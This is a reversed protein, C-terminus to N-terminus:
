LAGFVKRVISKAASAPDQRIKKEEEALMFYLGDLAKQTVYEDLDAHETKLLGFAAAPKALERYRQAVGVKQTARVVIPMFRDHLSKHTSRRFYETAATNGGTLIGKADQVSMKKVL